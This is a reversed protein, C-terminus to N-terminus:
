TDFRTVMTRERGLACLFTLNPDRMNECVLTVPSLLLGCHPLHNGHMHFLSAFSTGACLLVVVVVLRSGTSVRESFVRTPRRRRHKAFRLENPGCSIVRLITFVLSFAHSKCRDNEGSCEIPFPVKIWIGRCLRSTVTSGISSKIFNSKAMGLCLKRKAYVM